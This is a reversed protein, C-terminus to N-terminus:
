ELIGDTNWRVITNYGLKEYWPAVGTYHIFSIDYGEDKLIQTVHKVM